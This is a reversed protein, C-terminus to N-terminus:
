SLSVTKKDFFFDGGLLIWLGVRAVVERSGAALNVNSRQVLSWGQLRTTTSGIAEILSLFLLDSSFADHAQAFGHRIRM